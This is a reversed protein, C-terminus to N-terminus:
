LGDPTSSIVRECLEKGAKFHPIYKTPIMVPVGTKPNLGKRPCRRTVAFSGFGRIVARSGQVLANSLADLLVRVALDIDKYSFQRFTQSLKEILESRTM